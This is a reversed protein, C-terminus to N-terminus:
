EKVIGSHRVLRGDEEFTVTAWIEKSQIGLAGPCRVGPLVQVDYLERVDGGLDLWHTIAGTALEVVMLGCRAEAGKERLREDLELGAFTREERCQSLGVVAFGGAFALGRLYGPCFCLAEFKGTSLEVTGLEGSGSNLVYLQGQYWRPSHPMSLGAAVVEGSPVELVVGGAARQARWGDAVDARSAATVFRPQGDAMALGNLHCRDEPVLRSTFPPQWLPRFSHRSDTTALCGFLTNVFVPTGDAGVAVDHIDLDGTTWALQPKYLRDYDGSTEGPRLVNDFQLLQYRTALFLREPSAALGMAREFVRQLVSLRGSPKVGFLFLRNGHYTTVALGVDQGELWALFHRSGTVELPPAPL